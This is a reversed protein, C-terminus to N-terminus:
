FLPFPFIGMKLEEQFTFLVRYKILEKKAVLEHYNM